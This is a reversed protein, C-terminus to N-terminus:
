WPVPLGKWDRFVGNDAPTLGDIVTLLAQASQAATIAPHRGRYPASLATAVTGPHLAVVIAGPTRRAIEIAATRIIQNQAAKAARYSIWGGARNDGISGLRASLSGFVARRDSALLPSLHKLAIAVGTANLAFQAAMAAPDLAALSKEPASGGITLAGAANVILDFRQGALDRATAAVSAEDTLDLGDRRSRGTVEAGRDRLAQCLAAGIGGSDGLILAKMGDVGNAVTM